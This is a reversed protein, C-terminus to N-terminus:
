IGLGLTLLLSVMRNMLHDFVLGSYMGSHDSNVVHSDRKTFVFGGAMLVVFTRM